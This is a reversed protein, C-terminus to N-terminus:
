EFHFHHDHRGFEAASERRLLRKGFHMHRSTFVRRTLSRSLDGPKHRGVNPFYATGHHEPSQLVFGRLSM